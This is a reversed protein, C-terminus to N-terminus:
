IASLVAYEPEELIEPHILLRSDNFLFHSLVLYNTHGIVQILGHSKFRVGDGLHLNIGKSKFYIDLLL